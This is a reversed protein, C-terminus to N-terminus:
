QDDLNEPAKDPLAPPPLGRQLRLILNEIQLRFSERDALQRQLLHERERVHEEKLRASEAAQQEKVLALERAQTEKTHQLELELRLMQESLRHNEAFLNRVSGSLEGIQRDHGEVRRNLNFVDRALSILSKWM